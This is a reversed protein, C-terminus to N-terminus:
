RRLCNSGDSCHQRTHYGNRGTDVYHFGKSGTTKSSSPRTLTDLLDRLRSAARRAAEVDDPFLVKEPHTIM